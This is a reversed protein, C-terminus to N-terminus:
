VALQLSLYIPMVGIFFKPDMIRLPSVNMLRCYAVPCQMVRNKLNQIRNELFRKDRSRKGTADALPRMAAHLFKRGHNAGDTAVFRLLAIRQFAVYPFEKIGNIMINQELNEPLPDLIRIRHPQNAFNDSAECGRPWVEEFPAPKRDPIKRGLNERVNINIFEVLEYLM